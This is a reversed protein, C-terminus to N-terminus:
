CNRGAVTESAHVAHVEGVGCRSSAMVLASRLTHRGSVNVGRAVCSGNHGQRVWRTVVSRTRSARGVWYLPARWSGAHNDAFLVAANPDASWPAQAAPNWAQCLVEFRQDPFAQQKALWMWSYAGHLGLYLWAELSGNGHVLMFSVVVPVVLIKRLNIAASDTM